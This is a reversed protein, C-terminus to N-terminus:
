IRSCFLICYLLICYNETQTVELSLSKGTVLFTIANQNVPADGKQGFQLMAERHILDTETHGENNLFVHEDIFQCPLWSMQPVCVASLSVSYNLLSVYLIIYRLITCHLISCCLTTHNIVTNYLVTHHDNWEHRTLVFTSGVCLSKFM